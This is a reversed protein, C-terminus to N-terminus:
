LKIFKSTLLVADDLIHVYYVGSALHGIHIDCPILEKKEFVIKGTTDYLVITAARTIGSAVSITLRDNAPNPYIKIEENMNDIFINSVMDYDCPKNQSQWWDTIYEIDSDHYCRLLHYTWTPSFSIYPIFEDGRIAQYVPREIGVKEIYIYKGLASLWYDPELEYDVAYSTHIEKLEVGDIFKSFIRDITCSVIMTSDWMRDYPWYSAKFEFDVVDGEKVTFDYIKRFKNNFYYYVIGNEEYLIDKGTESSILRCTKGEVVTDKEVIYRRSFVQYDNSFPWAWEFYWEAGIPFWETQSHVDLFLFLLLLYFFIKM